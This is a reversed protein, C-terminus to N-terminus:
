AGRGFLGREHDLLWAKRWLGGGYGRLAGGVSVVRHCPVLIAIPNDGNARGVARQAGARGIDRAQRAYTITEGYPIACLRAWAERQFPAGRLDLAVGFARVAGEFYGRLEVELLTLHASAGGEGSEGRGIREVRDHGSWAVPKEDVFELSRVGVGSARAAMKGLPTRLRVAALPESVTPADRPARAEVVTPLAPM